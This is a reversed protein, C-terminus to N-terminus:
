RSKNKNKVVKIKHEKFFELCDDTVKISVSSKEQLPHVKKKFFIRWTNDESCKVRVTKERFNGTVRYEQLNGEEDPLIGTLIAFPFDGARVILESFNEDWFNYNTNKAIKRKECFKIFLIPIMVVFILIPVSLGLGVFLKVSDAVITFVYSLTGILLICIGLILFIIKKRSSQSNTTEMFYNKYKWTIGQIKKQANEVMEEESSIRNFLKSSACMLAIASSADDENALIVFVMKLAETPLRELNMTSMRERGVFDEISSCETPSVSNSM